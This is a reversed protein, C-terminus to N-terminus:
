DLSPSLLRGLSDDKSDSRVSENNAEVEEWLQSLDEKYIKTKEWFWKYVAKKKLNL